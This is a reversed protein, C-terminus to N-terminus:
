EEVEMELWEFWCRKCVGDGKGLQCRLTFGPPCSPYQFLDALQENTMGRVLDGNRKVHERMLKEVTKTNCACGIGDKEKKSQYPVIGALCKGNKWAKCGLCRM